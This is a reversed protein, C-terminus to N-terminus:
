RVIWDARSDPVGHSSVAARYERWFQKVEKREEQM